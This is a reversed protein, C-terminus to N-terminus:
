RRPREDHGSAGADTRRQRTRPVQQAAIPDDDDRRDHDPCAARCNCGSKRSATPEGPLKEAIHVFLPRARVQRENFGDDRHRQPEDRRNDCHRKGGTHRGRGPRPPMRIEGVACGYKAPVRKLREKRQNQERDDPHKGCREQQRRKPM